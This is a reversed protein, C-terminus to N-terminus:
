FHLVVRMSAGSPSVSSRFWSQRYRKKHEKRSPNYLTSHLGKYGVWWALMSVGMQPIFDFPRTESKSRGELFFRSAAIGVAIGGNLAVLCAISNRIKYKRAEARDLRHSRVESPDIARVEYQRTSFLIRGPSRGLIVGRYVEGSHLVLVDETDDKIEDNEAALCALPLAIILIAILSSCSPKLGHSIM